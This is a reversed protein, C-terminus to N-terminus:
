EMRVGAERAVAGWKAIDAEILADFAAPAPSAPPEAGFRALAEATGPAALAAALAEALRALAPAPTAAPASLGFWTDGEFGPLGSEAVTPMEPALPSRRPSTVALGKIRGERILPLSWVVSDFLYSISGDILGPVSQVGGRFPVHEVAIGARLRFLEGILHTITGTGSSAFNLTGPQAKALAILEAVSGAALRPSAILINTATAVLGISAFDRRADYPLRPSLAPLVAHTSTTSMLFSHGDAPARAVAEAGLAGAAGARNEVAVTQGLPGSMAAAIVRALADTAGGAPFPVVLRLPRSPFPQALAPLPLALAAAALLGRRTLPDPPQAM